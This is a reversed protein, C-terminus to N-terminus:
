INLLGSGVYSTKRSDLELMSFSNKHGTLALGGATLLDYKTMEEMSRIKLWEDMIDTHVERGIHRQIYTRTAAFIAEKSKVDTYEGAIDSIKNKVRDVTHLLFGFFGWREFNKQVEDVQREANVKCGYYICAKLVDECYDDTTPQRYRYTLVFRDSTWNAFDGEPPMKDKFSNHRYLVAIGGDSPKTSKTKNSRFSDAGAMFKGENDPFWSVKQVGNLMIVDQFIQNSESDSLVMSCNFIGQPHPEWVVRSKFPVGDWRLNGKILKTNGHRLEQLRDQIGTVNFDSDKTQVWFCDADYIPFQRMYSSLKDWMKNKRLFDRQSLIKEMAGMRKFELNRNEPKSYYKEKLYEYQADTPTEIISEGYEGICGDLGDVASFFMFVFGSKTRGNPLRDYYNSDRCLSLFDEGVKADMEEVSSIYYGFGKKEEFLALCQVTIDHRILINCEKTNGIEDALYRYLKVGNYAQETSSKYGISSNLSGIITEKIEKSSNKNEDQNFLIKDALKIYNPKLFFPLSYFPEILHTRYTTEATDEEKSQFGSQVKEKYATGIFLKFVIEFTKGMRRRKPSCIGLDISNTEFHKEAIFSRRQADRYDPLGIDINWFNIYIYHEGDIYTLKGNIFCWYGNFLRDIQRNIFEIEEYYEIQNENLFDWIQELQSRTDKKEKNVKIKGDNIRQLREPIIQRTFKQMKPELGYGDVKKIDGNFEPLPIEIPESLTTCYDNIKFSKDADQYIYRMAGM